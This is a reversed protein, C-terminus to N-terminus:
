RRAPDGGDDAPEIPDRVEGDNTKMGAHRHGLRPPDAGRENRREPRLLRKVDHDMGVMRALPPRLGGPM